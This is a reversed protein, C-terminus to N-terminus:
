LLTFNDAYICVDFSVAQCYASFTVSGMHSRVITHLYERKNNEATQRKLKKRIDLGPINKRSMDNPKLKIKEGEKM